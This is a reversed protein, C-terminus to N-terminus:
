IGGFFLAHEAERGLVWAGSDNPDPTMQELYAGEKVIALRGAATQDLAAFEKVIAEILTEEQAETMLRTESFKRAHTTNLVARRAAERHEAYPDAAM